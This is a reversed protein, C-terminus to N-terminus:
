IGLERKVLVAQAVETKNAMAEPDALGEDRAMQNLDERSNKSVLFEIDAQQKETLPRVAPRDMVATTSVSAQREEAPASPTGTLGREAGVPPMWGIGSPSDGAGSVVPTRAAVLPPATLAAAAMVAPGREVRIFDGRSLLGEADTKHVYGEPDYASFAYNVSPNVQSRFTFAGARNGTYRLLMADEPPPGNVAQQQQPPTWGSTTARGAGCSSCALLEGGKTLGFDKAMIASKSREFDAM